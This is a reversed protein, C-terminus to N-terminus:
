KVLMMTRSQAFDGAELRYIYVGSSLDSADFSAEHRGARQTENVLTAVNQGLVNYVTLTVSAQEPIEYSIRTVPNFPNPYNQDLKYTQPTSTAMRDSDTPTQDDTTMAVTSFHSVEATVLGNVSDVEVTNIGDINFQGTSDVFALVFDDLRSSMAHPLGEPISMKLTLPSDFEYPSITSDDVSVNFNIASAISDGFSVNQDASDVEAFRPIEITITIDESVASDPLILDSGNMYQFPFSFGHLRYTEGEQVTDGPTIEGGPTKRKFTITNGVSTTDEEALEGSTMVIDSFHSIEAKVIDQVSDGITTIGETDFNGTTDRYALVLDSVQDGVVPPLDSPVPMSLTVPEEFEFPAITSDGASVTFRAANAISDGFSVRNQQQDMAAIPPLTITITIDHSVADEPFELEGGNMIHLPFPLGSFMLTDGEAVTDTRAIVGNPLEIQIAITDQSEEQAMSKEFVGFTMLILLTNLLITLTKM